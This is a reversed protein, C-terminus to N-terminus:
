PKSNLTQPKPSVARFCFNEFNSFYCLDGAEMDSETKREM